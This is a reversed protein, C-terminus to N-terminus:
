GFSRREPWPAHLALIREGEGVIGYEVPGLPTLRMRGGAGLPAVTQRRKRGVRGRVVLATGVTGAVLAAVPPLLCPVPANSETSAGM